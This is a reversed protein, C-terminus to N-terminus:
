RPRATRHRRALHRQIGLHRFQYVTGARRLVGRAAHADTLFSMLRWPLHGRVALLFRGTAFRWWLAGGTAVFTGFALGAALGLELGTGLGIAAAAPLGGAWWLVLFARRDRVLLDSPSFAAHATPIYAGLGGAVAGVLGAALAAEVGNRGGFPLGLALGALAGAVAGAGVFVNPYWGVGASPGTREHVPTFLTGAGAALCVLGGALLARGVGLFPWGLLAAWSGLVLVLRHTPFRASLQWWALNPTGGLTTELHHALFALYREAQQPSWRCPRAPHPRYAARVFAGLLHNDVAARSPFETDVLEDPHPREGTGGGPRPNYITRAMFLGLPTSLAQALPSTRDQLAEAVRMWRQAGPARGGGSDRSLYPIATGADLPALEIGAAANLPVAAHDGDPVLAQAYEATRCTLVLAQKPTLAQNIAELALPRLARPLEDLGDFLPVILRRDVLEHALTRGPGGPRTGFGPAPAALAPHERTLERVMWARVDERAPDFSALAFLFPVPGGDARHAPDLLALLLRVLVVTKGAGPEGLVVLRRTPVRYLLVQEIDNGSGSLGEPGDAWRAPDNVPGGPVEEAISRILSWEETLAPDAATWAVPLPYPDSLRRVEAEAEWQRRVAVALRDCVEGPGADAQEPSGQQLRLATLLLPPLGLLAAVVGLVKGIEDVRDVGHAYLVGGVVLLAVSAYTRWWWRGRAGGM